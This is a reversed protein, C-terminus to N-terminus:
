VPVCQRDASTVEIDEILEVGLRKKVSHPTRAIGESAMEVAAKVMRDIQGRWAPNDSDSVHPWDDAEPSDPSYCRAEQAEPVISALARSLQAAEAPSLVIEFQNRGDRISLLVTGEDPDSDCEWSRLFQGCEYCDSASADNEAGCKLCDKTPM